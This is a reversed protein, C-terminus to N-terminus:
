IKLSATPAHISAAVEITKERGVLKAALKLAFEITTGAGQSTIINGDEVVNQDVPNPLDSRVSSHSTARHHDLLGAAALVKPAACIAATLRKAEVNKRLISHLSENETLDFIGPGGPLLIADFADPKVESLLLDAQFTIKNRGHITKQDKFSAVTTEVGVRRLIDTPALAEIEEVGDFVIVLARKVTESM